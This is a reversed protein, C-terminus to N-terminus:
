RRGRGRRAPTTGGTSRTVLARTSGPRGRSLIWQASAEDLFSVYATVVAAGFSGVMLDGSNFMPTQRRVFSSLLVTMVVPGGQM